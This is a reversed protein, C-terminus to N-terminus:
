NGYVKHYASMRKSVIKLYEKPENYKLDALLKEYVEDSTLTNIEEQANKIDMTNKYDLNKNKNFAWAVNGAGTNYAAIACYLRSDPDKITKLYKYYLIHLYATGLTINNTSDYLYSGTVLKKENYLFNYADIGASKPVIQMLGFAPIHSTARPNFNSESHMIAFVLPLPLTHKIAHKKIEDYYTQSRKLMADPPMQVLVSYVKTHPIKSSSSELITEDSVKEDVYDLVTEKSPPTNFLVNSLIPEAKVQADIIDKPKEIKALEKELPDTEQATKTDIVVIKALALKLKSKAEQPSTAITEVSITEKSFDVDVRTKKEPTYTVWTKNTSMKPDEWLAGVEKKYQKYAKMQSEQYSAFAKEQANKYIGFAQKQEDFGQMQEQKFEAATQASLTWTLVSIWLIYRLM